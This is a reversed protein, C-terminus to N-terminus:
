LNILVSHVENDSICERVGARNKGELCGTQLLSSSPSDTKCIMWPYPMNRWHPVTCKLGHTTFLYGWSSQSSSELPNQVKLMKLFFSSLCSSTSWPQLPKTIPRRFHYFPKKQLSRLFDRSLHQNSKGASFCHEQMRKPIYTGEFTSDM